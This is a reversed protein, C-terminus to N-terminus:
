GRNEFQELDKLFYFVRGGTKSYKPGTNYHRYRELTNPGLRLFEAAEKTTLKANDARRQEVRQRVIDNM